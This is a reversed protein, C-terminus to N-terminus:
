YDEINVVCDPTDGTRQCSFLVLEGVCWWDVHLTRVTDGHGRKSLHM